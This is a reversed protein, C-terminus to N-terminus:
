TAPAMRRGQWGAYISLWTCFAARCLCKSDSRRATCGAWTNEWSGEWELGSPSLGLSLVSKALAMNGYVRGLWQVCSGLQWVSHGWGYCEQGLLLPKPCIKSFAGEPSAQRPRVLVVSCASGVVPLSYTFIDPSFSFLSEFVIAPCLCCM